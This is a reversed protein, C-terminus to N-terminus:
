PRAIWKKVGLLREHEPVEDVGLVMGDRHGDLAGVGVAARPDPGDDDAGEEGADHPDADAEGPRRLGGGGGQLGVRRVGCPVVVGRHGADVRGGSEASEAPDVPLRRPRSRAAARAAM